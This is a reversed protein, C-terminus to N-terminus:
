HSHSQLLTIFILCLIQNSNLCFNKSYKFKKTASKELWMKLILVNQVIQKNQRLNIPNTFLCLFFFFFTKNLAIKEAIFNNTLKLFKLPLFFLVLFFFLSESM